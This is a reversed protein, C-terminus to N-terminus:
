KVAIWANRKLMRSLINANLLEEFEKQTREEGIVKYIPIKETQLGAVEDRVESMVLMEQSSGDKAYRYLTWTTSDSIDYQSVMFGNNLPYDRCSGDMGDSNWCYLVGDEYHFVGNYGEPSNEMQVLLESSGDGDLDLLTYEYPFTGDCFQEPIHSLDWRQYAAPDLFSADGRLFSLYIDTLPENKLNLKGAAPDEPKETYISAVWAFKRRGPEFYSSILSNYIDQVTLEPDDHVVALTYYCSNFEEQFISFYPYTYYHVKEGNGAWKDRRWDEVLTIETGDYIMCQSILDGEETYSGVNLMAPQKKNYADQFAWLYEVGYDGQLTNVMCGMQALTEPDDPLAALYELLEEKTYGSAKKASLGYGDRISGEQGSQNGANGEATGPKESADKKGPDTLFCVAIVACSVLAVLIIWFAPKKYNLVHKVRDKVSVEGFALPCLLITRRKVSCSLLADSYALAEEQSRDKIVKEDCAIEIDRCLLVYAVWMLPNFWYITLVAFGLPKWLHDGRKLHAQEHATVYPLKEEPLGSPIYIQPRFIGFLFPTEIDDCLRVNEEVKISARVKYHLRLYSVVAYLIMFIMGLVWIWAALFNVIQLPYASAIPDPTFSNLIVPNVVRDISTIGTDVMPHAQLGIDRPIPEGSPILSLVSKLTFPCVLRIGVMAWLLCSIWRPAKRILLRMMLVALILLSATISRNLIALFLGEM